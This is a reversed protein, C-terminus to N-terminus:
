KKWSPDPKRAQNYINKFVENFDYNGRITSRVGKPALDNPTNIPKM